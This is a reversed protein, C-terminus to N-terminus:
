KDKSEDKVSAKMEELLEKKMQDKVAKIEAPTLTVKPTEDKLVKAAGTPAPTLDRFGPKGDKIEQEKDRPKYDVDTLAKRKGM